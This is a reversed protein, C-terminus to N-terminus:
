VMKQDGRWAACLLPSPGETGGDPDGGADILTRTMSRRVAWDATPSGDETWLILSDGCAAQRVVEPTAPEGAELLLELMEVNDPTASALLVETTPTAGADLLLEFVEVYNSEVAALLVETTPTAGADLLLEAITADGAGPPPSRLLGGGDTVCGLATLEDDDDARDNDDARDEDGDDPDDRDGPDTEDPDAGERLLETVRPEDGEAVARILPVESCECPSSFLPGDLGCGRLQSLLL